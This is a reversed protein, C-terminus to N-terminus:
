TLAAGDAKARLVAFEEACCLGRLLDAALVVREFEGRAIKGVVDFTDGPMEVLGDAVRRCKGHQFDALERAVM